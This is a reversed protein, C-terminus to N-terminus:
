RINWVCRSELYLHLVLINSEVRGRGGVGGNELFGLFLRLAFCWFVLFLDQLWVEGGCVRPRWAELPM